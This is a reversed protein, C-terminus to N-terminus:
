ADAHGLSDLLRETRAGTLRCTNERTGRGERALKRSEEMLWGASLRCGGDRVCLTMQLPWESQQALPIFGVIPKLLEPYDRLVNQDSSTM